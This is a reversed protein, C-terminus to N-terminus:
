ISPQSTAKKLRDPFSNEAINKNVVRELMPKFVNSNIKLTKAPISSIPAVKDANLMLIQHVIKDSSTEKLNFKESVINHQKIRKISLTISISRLPMILLIELGVQIKHSHRVTVSQLKKLLISVISM